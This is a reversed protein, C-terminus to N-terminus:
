LIWSYTIHNRVQPQVKKSNISNMEPWQSFGNLNRSYASSINKNTFNPPFLYMLIKFKWIRLPSDTSTEWQYMSSSFKLCMISQFWNIWIWTFDQVQQYPRSCMHVKSSRSHRLKCRSNSGTWASQKIEKGRPGGPIWCYFRWRHGQSVKPDKGRSITNGQFLVVITTLWTDPLM